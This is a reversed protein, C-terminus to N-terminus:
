KIIIWNFFVINKKAVKWKCQLIMKNNEYALLDHKHYTCVHKAYDQTTQITHMSVTDCLNFTNNLHSYYHLITMDKHYM